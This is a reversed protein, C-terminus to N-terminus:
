LIIVSCLCDHIDNFLGLLAGFTHLQSGQKSRNPSSQVHASRVVGGSCKVQLQIFTSFKLNIKYQDFVLLCLHLLFFLVIM